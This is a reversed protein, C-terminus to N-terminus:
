LLDRLQLLERRLDVIKRNMGTPSVFKDGEGVATGIKAYRAMVYVDRRIASAMMECLLATKKAREVRSAIEGDSKVDIGGWYGGLVQNLVQLVQNLVQNPNVSVQNM